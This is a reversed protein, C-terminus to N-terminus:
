ALLDGQRSRSTSANASTGIVEGSVRTSGIAPGSRFPSGMSAPRPLPLSSGYNRALIVLDAFDVLNDYNFDGESFLPSPNTTNYNRALAVLDSFGVANDDDADGALQKFNLSAPAPSNGALDSVGATNVSLTFRGDPLLDNFSVIYTLGDLGLAELPISAGGLNNILSIAGPALTGALSESTQFQVDQTQERDYVFGSLVPAVTDITVLLTGASSVNGAVDTSEFSVLYTGDALVSSTSTEFSGTSVGSGLVNADIRATTTSGAEASGVFRLTNINTIGDSNSVGSDDTALIALGSPAVPAVSDVTFTLSPGTSPSKTPETQRATLTVPGDPFVVSGNTTVVTSTGTATASGVVTTGLLLEILAGSVTNGVNFQLVDSATGNNLRTIGDANSIGTDSLATLVPAAPVVSNQALITLNANNIDFFINNTPEVMFRVQSVTVNPLTVSESGDNAVNSALLTPFTVGADTSMRINVNTANIPAVNTNGISWTLTITSGGALSQISNFNTIAFASSGSVTNVATRAFATGGAGARNDRVLVAFNM